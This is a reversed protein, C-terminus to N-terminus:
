ATPVDLACDASATNRLYVFGRESADSNISLELTGNGRERKLKAHVSSNVVHALVEVDSGHQRRRLRLISERKSSLM